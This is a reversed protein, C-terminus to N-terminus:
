FCDIKEMQVVLGVKNHSFQINKKGIIFNLFAILSNKKNSEEISKMNKM